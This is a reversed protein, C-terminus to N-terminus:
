CYTMSEIELGITRSHAGAVVERVWAVKAMAGFSASGARLHKAGQFEKFSCPIPYVVHDHQHM